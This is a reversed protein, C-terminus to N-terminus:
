CGEKGIERGLPERRLEWLGEKNSAQSRSTLDLRPLSGHELDVPLIDQAPM